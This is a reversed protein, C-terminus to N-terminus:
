AALPHKEQAFGRMQPRFNAPLQKPIRRPVPLGRYRYFYDIGIIAGMGAAFALSAAAELSFPLAIVSAAAAAIVPLPFTKM